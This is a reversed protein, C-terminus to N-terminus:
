AKTIVLVVDDQFHHMNVQTNEKTDNYYLVAKETKKSLLDTFTASCTEYDGRLQLVTNYPAYIILYDENEAAVLEVSETNAIKDRCPRLREFGHSEMFTKLYVYDNAGEFRLADQWPYPRDFVMYSQTDHPIDPVYWSWIGHAGYTIGANAGGLVSQWAAKRVDFRRFRGYQGPGFGMMEYCPEANLVPRKKKRRFRETLKAIVQPSTVDHGSQFTYFDLNPNQELSAPLDSDPGCLHLTTLADPSCKKVQNLAREYYAITEEDPFDTDGSIVYIPDYQDFREVVDTVYAEIQDIPFPHRNFNFAQAWTNPIYNCWLLVLAVQMDKDQATKLMRAVRDFYAPNPKTFDFHKSPGLAFPMIDFTPTSADWQWLLNVQITNFGQRKRYDVYYAWDEETANTFASWCTDALYFYPKGDKVFSRKDTSIHM